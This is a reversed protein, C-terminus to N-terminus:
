GTVTWLYGLAFVAAFVVATGAGVGLECLIRKVRSDLM